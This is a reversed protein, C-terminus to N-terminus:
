YDGIFDEDIDMLIITILLWYYGGISYGSIFYGGITVLLIVM